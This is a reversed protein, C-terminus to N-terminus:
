MMVSLHLLRLNTWQFILRWRKQMKLERIRLVSQGQINRTIPLCFDIALILLSWRKQVATIVGMDVDGYNLSVNAKGSLNDDEISVVYDGSPIGSFEFTGDDKTETKGYETKVSNKDTRSISLAANLSGFGAGGVKLERSYRASVGLKSVAGGVKLYPTGTRM